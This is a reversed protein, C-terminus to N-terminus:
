ASPATTKHPHNTPLSSQLGWKHALYGEVKQRNTTTITGSYIMVERMKGIYYDSSSNAGIRAGIWSSLFTNSSDSGISTGNLYINRSNTIFSFTWIRTPQTNGTGYGYSSINVNLDNFYFAFAIVPTGTRYIIHLNTNVDNVTGKMLTYESSLPVNGIQEVIFITFYQNVVINPNTIIYSQSGTFNIYGGLSDRQFAASGSTGNNSNGSKDVWTSVTSGNSPGSGTGIPDAGDLWLGCGPILTPLFPATTANFRRALSTAQTRSVQRRRM